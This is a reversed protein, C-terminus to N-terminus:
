HFQFKSTPFSIIQLVSVKFDLRQSQLSASMKNLPPMVTAAAGAVCTYNLFQASNAFHIM